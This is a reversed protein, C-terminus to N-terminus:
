RSGSTSMPVLEIGKVGESLRASNRGDVSLGMSLRRSSQVVGVHNGTAGRSSVGTSVLSDLYPKLIPALKDRVKLQGADNPHLNDSDFDSSALWGNTNVYHLRKDGASVLQNVANQTETAMYNGFTRMAFIHAKPYKGRLLKLFGTYATQFTSGPEVCLADNTGINVVVLDPTYSFDWSKTTTAPTSPHLPPTGLKSYQVEMGATPAGGFTYHYANSLTIGPYSITARDAGLAEGTLWAFASINGNTTKSGSTISNGIFEVLGRSSEAPLTKAGADLAFGQFVIEDLQFKAVLKITHNGTSLGTALTVVGNAWDKIVAPRSDIFAVVCASKGLNVKISTGTFGTRVYAGGWYSHPASPNSKDWRGVYLLNPDQPSGDGTAARAAEPMACVLAVLLLGALRSRRPDAGLFLSSLVGIEDRM